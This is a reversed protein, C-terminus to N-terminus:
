TKAPGMEDSVGVGGVGPAKLAIAGCRLCIGTEEDVEGGCELCMIKPPAIYTPSGPTFRGCANCKVCLLCM